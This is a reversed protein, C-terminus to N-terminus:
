FINSISFYCKKFARVALEDIVTQMVTNIQGQSQVSADSSISDRRDSCFDSPHVLDITEIGEIKTSPFLIDDVSSRIAKLIINHESPTPSHQNTIDPTTRGTSNIQNDVTSTRSHEQVCTIAAKTYEEGFNEFTNEPIPLEHADAKPVSKYSSQDEEESASGTEEEESDGLKHSTEDGEAVKVENEAAYDGLGKEHGESDFDETNEEDTSADTVPESSDSDNRDVILIQHNENFRVIRESSPAPREKKSDADDSLSAIDESELSSDDSHALAEKFHSNTEDRIANPLGTLTRSEPVVESVCSEKSGFFDEFNDLLVQFLAVMIANANWEDQSGSLIIAPSSHIPTMPSPLAEVSMPNSRFLSPAFVRALNSTSMKNIDSLSGVRRLHAVLTRLVSRNSPPLRELALSLAAISRECRKLEEWHDFPILGEPLDRFLQKFLAAMCPYNAPELEHNHFIDLNGKDLKSKLETITRKSGSTRYIGEIQLIHDQEMWSVFEQVVVPVDTRPFGKLAGSIQDEKLLEGLSRGFILGQGDPTQMPAYNVTDDTKSRSFDRSFSTIIKFKGIFKKMALYCSNRAKTTSYVHLLALM